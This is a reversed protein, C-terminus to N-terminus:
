FHELVMPMLYNKLHERNNYIYQLLKEETNFFSVIQKGDILINEFNNEENFQLVDNQILILLQCGTNILLQVLEQMLNSKSLQFYQDTIYVLYTQQNQMLGFNKNYQYKQNNQTLYISLKEDSNLIFQKLCANIGLHFIYESPKRQQKKKEANIQNQILKQDIFQNDCSNLKILQNKYTQCYSSQNIQITQYSASKFIPQQDIRIKNDYPTEQNENLIKLQKPSVSKQNQLLLQKKSSAICNQQLMELNSKSSTNFQPKIQINQLNLNHKSKNLIHDQEQFIQKSRLEGLSTNQQEKNQQDMQYDSNKCSDQLQFQFLNQNNLGKQINQNYKQTVNQINLSDENCEDDMFTYIQQQKLPINSNDLYQAQPKQQKDNLTTNLHSITYFNQQNLVQTINNKKINEKSQSFEIQDPLAYSEFSTQSLDQSLQIQELHQNNRESDQKQRQHNFSLNERINSSEQDTKQNQPKKSFHYNESKFVSGTKLNINSNQVSQLNIDQIYSIQNSSPLHTISQLNGILNKQQCKENQFKSSNEEYKKPLLSLLVYEFFQPSQWILKIYTSALLQTYIQEEFNYQILGFSDSEKFLIENILDNCMAYLKLKNSQKQCASILYINYNSSTMQTYSKYAVEFDISKISQQQFIKSLLDMQLKRLHPLYYQCQEFSNTLILAAKYFSQQKILYSALEISYYQYYIDSSFEYKVIKDNNKHKRVPYFILKNNGEENSVTRQKKSQIFKIHKNQKQNSIKSAEQQSLINKLNSFRQNQLISHFEEQSQSDNQQKSQSQKQIQKVIQNEREDQLFIFPNLNIKSNTVSINPIQFDNEQLIKSNSDIQKISRPYKKQHNDVVKSKKQFFISNELKPQNIKQQLQDKMEEQQIDKKIKQLNIQMKNLFNSSQSNFLHYVKNKIQNKISTQKSRQKTKKIPTFLIFSNTTDNNQSVNNNLQNTYSSQMNKSLKIHTNISQASNVETQKQSEQFQKKQKSEQIKVYILSLRNLIQIAESNLNQKQLVKSLTYYNIIERKNSPPLYIQSIIINELAHDEIIDWLQNNNKLIFMYMAKILNQKRNFLSWYLEVQYSQLQNLNSKQRTKEQYISINLNSINEDTLELTINNQISSRFHSTIRKISQTFDAGEGEQHHSYTNLEYNAYVVAQQFYELAEQFRGCNYHIVGMNNYCVGLARHNGFRQFHQIQKILNLLQLSADEKYFNQTTFRLVKFMDQFSELLDQTDRSHCVGQFDADIQEDILIENVQEAKQERLVIQSNNLHNSQLKEQINEQKEKQNSNTTLNINQIRIKSLIHTLHVVPNLIYKGLMISYYIQIILIISILGYSIQAFMTNYFYITNKLNTAYIQLNEKTLVNLFLYVKKLQFKPAPNIPRNREIKPLKDVMSIVNLIVLCDTGNRNYEFTQQSNELSYKQQYSSINLMVYNSNQILNQLFINAQTQDQLNDTEAQMVTVQQQLQAQSNYLVTLSFPDVLMWYISNHGFNQLYDPIVQLNLTLCLVSFIDNQQKSSLNVRRQCFMSAYYPGTAGLNMTPPYVVTSINGVTPQYFYRCRPDFKYPGKYPCNDPPKYTSYTKNTGPMYVIGDYVLNTITNDINLWRTVEHLNDFKFSKQFFDVQTLLKLQSLEIQDLQWLYAKSVQHWVSTLIPNKKFMKIVTTNEKNLYTRDVNHLPPIYKKSNKIKGQQQYGTFENILNLQWPIKQVQQNIQFLVAINQQKSNNIQDQYLQDSLQDIILM